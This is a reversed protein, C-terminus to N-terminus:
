ALPYSAMSAIGCQNKGRVMRIYGSEGWGTGWSNKVNWYDKGADTGYGVLTIGHDLNTGCAKNDLVGGSYFQFVSTDAEVAVSVPQIVLANMLATESGAQVDKYSSIKAVSSGSKCSGDVGKYPYAAESYPQNKGIYYEFASDMLGGDCGYNGYAGACDVLQQESLSQLNGTAIATVGETAAVASFAWCSGCQGQDKVGTVANHQRWDWDARPAAGNEVAPATIFSQAYPAIRPRLGGVYLAKFEEETLDGFQNMAFTYSENKANHTQIKDLNAKFTNYRGFFENTEYTKGHQAIWKTFLFQSQEETLTATALVAFCVVLALVAKM